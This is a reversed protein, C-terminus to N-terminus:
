PCDGCYCYWRGGIKVWCPDGGPESGGPPNRQSPDPSTATGAGDTPRRFVEITTVRILQDAHKPPHERPTRTVREGHQIEVLDGWKNLSLSVFPKSGDPTTM